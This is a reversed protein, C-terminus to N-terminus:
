CIKIKLKNKLIGIYQYDASKQSAIGALFTFCIINDFFIQRKFNWKPNHGLLGQEFRLTHRIFILSCM